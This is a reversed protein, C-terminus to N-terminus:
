FQGRDFGHHRCVLDALRNFEAGHHGRDQNGVRLHILEHALTMLVAQLTHHREPNIQIHHATGDFWYLGQPGHTGPRDITKAYFHIEDAHPMKWPRFPLTTLLLLYCQELM